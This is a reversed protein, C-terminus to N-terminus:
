CLRFPIKLNKLLEEKCESWSFLNNKVTFSVGLCLVANIVLTTKNSKTLTTDLNVRLIPVLYMIFENTSTFNELSMYSLINAMVNAVYDPGGENNQKLDSEALDWVVVSFM